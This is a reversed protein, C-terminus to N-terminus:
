KEVPRSLHRRACKPVEYLELSLARPVAIKTAADPGKKARCRRCRYGGTRGMSKMTTGCALCKPKVVKFAPALRLVNLKELNLTFPRKHVGGMAKIRDGPVLSRVIGRFEKTPEFAACDIRGTGDNITVFVHGGRDTRPPTVVVGTLVPSMFSKLDSVVSPRLHDDTGQNTLFLLLRGAPEGADIADAASWLCGPEFARIGFLVPCPSHPAIVIHGNRTDINNFTSPFRRDMREVSAFEVHRPTGWRKRERYAILEYTRRRGRWAVAASAGVIGRRGSHTRWRIIDSPMRRLSRLVTSPSVLERVADTYLREPPLAATVTGKREEPTHAGARVGAVAPQLRTALVGAPPLDGTRLLAVEM